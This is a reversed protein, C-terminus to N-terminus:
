VRKLLLTTPDLDLGVGEGVARGHEKVLQLHVTSGDGKLRLLVDIIADYAAIPEASGDKRLRASMRNTFRQSPLRPRRAAATRGYRSAEGLGRSSSTPQPDASMGAWRSRVAGRGMNATPTSM